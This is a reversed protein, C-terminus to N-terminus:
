FAKIEIKKFKNMAGKFLKEKNNVKSVVYQKTKPNKLQEKTTRSIDKENNSLFFHRQM